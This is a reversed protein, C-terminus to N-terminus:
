DIYQIIEKLPKRRPKKLKTAPYGIPIIVRPQWNKQWNFGYKKLIGQLKDKIYLPSCLWVSGLGLSWAALMMSYCACAVGQEEKIGLEKRCAETYSSNSNRFVLIALPTLAILGDNSSLYNKGEIVEKTKQLNLGAFQRKRGIFAAKAIEERCKKNRIALFFWPQRNKASPAAQAAKLIIDILKDNVPKNSFKRCCTRTM